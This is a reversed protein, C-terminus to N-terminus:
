PLRAVTAPKDFPLGFAQALQELVLRVTKDGNQHVIMPKGGTAMMRISKDQMDVEVDIEIKTNVLAGFLVNWYDLGILHSKVSSHELSQAVTDLALSSAYKTSDETPRWWVLPDLFAKTFLLQDDFCDGKYALRIMEVLHGAKGILMGANLFRFPSAILASGEQKSPPQPYYEALSGDPYCAPEAPFFVLPGKASAVLTEYAQIIQRASFAPLLLVDDTDSFVVLKSPDLGVLHDHLIRMRMGWRRKWPVNYGYVTLQIGKSALVDAFRNTGMNCSTAYAVWELPCLTPDKNDCGALQASTFENWAKESSYRPPGLLPMSSNNTSALAKAMGASCAQVKSERDRQVWLYNCMTNRPKLFSNPLFSVKSDILFPLVSFTNFQLFVLFYIFLGSFFLFIGLKRIRQKRFMIRM